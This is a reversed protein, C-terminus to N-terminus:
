VARHEAEDLATLVTDPQTILETLAITRHAWQAPDIGEAFAAASTFQNRLNVPLSQALEKVVQRATRVRPSVPPLFRALKGEAPVPVDSASILTEVVHREREGNVVNSLPIAIRQVEAIAGRHLALSIAGPDEHENAYRAADEGSPCVRALSVDGFGDSSDVISGPRITLTPRLQVRYLYFQNDRDGQDDMRRLMNHVAAEYTGVHLAKARQRAAWAAVRAEGGMMSRTEATLNAAPDFDKAPWDPHTSTHYWFVRRAYADDLVPDTPDAFVGPADEEQCDVGCGPCQEHGQEWRGIWELDAVFEHGCHGCRMLRDRDFDIDREMALM